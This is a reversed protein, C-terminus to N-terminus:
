LRASIVCVPQGCGTLEATQHRQANDVVDFIKITRDSGASAIQKGYHDIQMDHILDETNTQLFEISPRVM